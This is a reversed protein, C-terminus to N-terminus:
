ILGVREAEAATWIVLDNRGQYRGASGTGTFAGFMAAIVHKPQPREVLRWGSPAGGGVYQVVVHSAPEGTIEELRRRAAEPTRFAVVASVNGRAAEVDSDVAFYEYQRNPNGAVGFSGGAFSGISIIRAM